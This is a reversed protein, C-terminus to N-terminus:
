GNPLAIRVFQLHRVQASGITFGTVRRDEGRQVEVTSNEFACSFKDQATGQLVAEGKRHRLILKGGKMTVHYFLDLDECYFDGTLEKMQDTTLEIKKNPQKKGSKQAGTDPEKKAPELRDELYVDAIKRAMAATQFDSVNSLIIVTFHQDPFRTIVTRYGSHAGTHEVTKLGRYSGMRLGGAYISTEGSNLKGQTYMMEITKPNGVKPDYFNADWRALDPVTTYLNTAGAAGHPLFLRNFGGTKPGYCDAANKVVLHYDDRIVTSKMGLPGFVEQQAYQNLSKGTTRKVIVGLLYYGTNCYSYEAGPEFNLKKQRCVLDFLDKDTIVDVTRWGAYNALVIYERLGSSHHLLHRVTITKGYDPLEPIHKRVDDDLSLTGAQALLMILFATFQKSVSAVLFLTSMTLAIGHELSAAGCSRQYVMQGDKVVGVVCGPADARDWKQLLADIKPNPSPSDAPKQDHALGMGVASVLFIPLSVRWAVKIMVSEM